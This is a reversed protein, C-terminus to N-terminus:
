EEDFLTGINEQEWREQQVWEEIRSLLNMWDSHTLNQGTAVDQIHDKIGEVIYDIKM